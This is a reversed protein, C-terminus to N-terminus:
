HLEKKKKKAAYMKNDAAKLMRGLETSKIRKNNFSHGISAELAIPLESKDSFEKMKEALEKESNELSEEDKYECMVLFEDGGMRVCITDGDFVQKICDAMGIIAKDGVEHGYEDNMLKLNDIDIYVIYVRGKYKAFMKGSLSAYGFRNYLGTMQDVVYLEKFKRNMNDIMIKQMINEIAISISDLVSEHYKKAYLRADYPMIAYGFLENRFYLPSYVFVKEKRNNWKDPKTSRERNIEEVGGPHYCMMPNSFCNESKASGEMYVDNKICVAMEFLQLKKYTQEIASQLEEFSRCACVLGRLVRHQKDIEKEANRKMASQRIREIVDCEPECGCSENIRVLGPIFAEMPINEAKKTEILFRLGEYFMRSLNKNVSTLSPYFEQGEEINDFGCIKFDRQPFYGKEYAAMCYGLAMKDNACVVADPIPMNKSILDNFADCGDEEIFSNFSVYREDPQIGNSRLCDIFARYREENDYYGKTGGVFQFTKCKHELIMHEMMAYESAYNDIGVYPVGSLKRDISIIPKNKMRFENIIQELAWDSKASNTYAILGDYYDVLPLLYISVESKTKQDDEKIDYANFIDVVIDKNEVYESVGAMMDTFNDNSWCTTVIAIKKM